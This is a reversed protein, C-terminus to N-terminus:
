CKHCGSQQAANRHWRWRGRRANTGDNVADLTADLARNKSRMDSRRRAFPLLERRGLECACILCELFAALADVAQRSLSDRGIM